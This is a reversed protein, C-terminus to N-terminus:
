NLVGEAKALCDSLFAEYSHLAQRGGRVLDTLYEPHESLLRDMQRENFRAHGVDLAVHHNLFSMGELTEKGLHDICHRMFDAGIRVSLSEIELEIALQQYPTNGSIVDEHLDFYSQAGSPLPASVVEKFDITGSYEINWRQALLQVDQLHMCHHDAEDKAHQCLAEGLEILGHESCRNGARRIWDEVPQTIAVGVGAFYILFLHLKKKNIDKNFLHRMTKSASFADRAGQIQEEYDKLLGNSNGTSEMRVEGSM